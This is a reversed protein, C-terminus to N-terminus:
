RWTGRCLARRSSTTRVSRFILVTKPVGNIVRTDYMSNYLGGPHLHGAMAVITSDQPM